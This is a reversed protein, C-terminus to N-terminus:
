QPKPMQRPVLPNQEIQEQDGATLNSRANASPFLKVGSMNAMDRMEDLVTLKIPIIQTFGNAYTVYKYPM